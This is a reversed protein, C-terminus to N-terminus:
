RGLNFRYDVGVLVKDINIKEDFGWAGFIPNTATTLTHSGFGLHDYEVWVDWNPAFMWALGAGVDYGTRAIHVSTFDGPIFPNTTPNNVTFNGQVFAAGGIAYVMLTPSALFGLRATVTEFSNINTKYYQPANNGINPLPVLDASKLNAGDWMGRIGVVWNNDFQYDCGIQGGYAFGSPTSNVTPSPVGNPLGNLETWAHDARAWAGGANGGIYCGTWSHQHAPTAPAKLPMDAAFAQPGLHSLALAAIAGVVFKKM